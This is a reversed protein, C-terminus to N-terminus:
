HGGGALRRMLTLSSGSALVLMLLALAALVLLGSDGNDAPHRVASLLSDVASPGTSKRPAPVVERSAEVRAATGAAAHRAARERGRDV